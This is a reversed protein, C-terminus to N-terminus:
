GEKVVRRNVFDCLRWFADWRRHRGSPAPDVPFVVTEMSAPNFCVVAEGNNVAEDGYLIYYRGDQMYPRVEDWLEGLELSRAYEFAM